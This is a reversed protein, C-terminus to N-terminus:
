ARTPTPSQQIAPYSSLVMKQGKGPGQKLTLGHQQSKFGAESPNEGVGTWLQRERDNLLEVM